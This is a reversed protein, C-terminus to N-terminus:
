LEPMPKLRGIYLIDYLVSQPKSLIESALMPVALVLKISAPCRCDPGFTTDAISNIYTCLQGVDNCASTSSTGTAVWYHLSVM